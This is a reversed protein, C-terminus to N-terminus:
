SEEVFAGDPCSRNELVASLASTPCRYHPYAMQNTVFLHSHTAFQDLPYAAETHIHGFWVISAAIISHIIGWAEVSVAPIIAHAALGTASILAGAVIFSWLLLYLLFYISVFRPLKQIWGELLTTGTVLQWRALNENIIYKILAGIVAAWLITTGFNAGSVSAAILDGAGVGTAAIVIGPGISKYSNFNISSM